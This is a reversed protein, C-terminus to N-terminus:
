DDDTDNAPNKAQKTKGNQPKAQKEPQQAPTTPTGNELAGRLAGGLRAGIGRIGREVIERTGELDDNAPPQPPRPRDTMTLLLKAAGMELTVQPRPEREAEVRFRQIVTDPLHDSRYVTEGTRKDLCLVRFQATTETPAAHAQQRDAFILFPLDPPQILMMGRNRVTAPGPWLPKGTKMSFAYVPGNVIPSDFAQTVTRLQPQPLGTIFVFLDDGSRISYFNQLDSPVELKEDIVVKGAEVDILRFQGTSELVAVANPEIISYRVRDSLETQYLPKQSWIDTV